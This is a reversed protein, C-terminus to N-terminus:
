ASNIEADLFHRIIIVLLLITNKKAAVKTIRILCRGTTSCDKLRDRRFVLCTLLIKVEM